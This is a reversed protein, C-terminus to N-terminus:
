NVVIKKVTRRNGDIVTVLYIGSSVNSLQINQDFHSTNDFSNSYVKKGLIDHVFVEVRNTADSEFQVTFNGKNPNPYLVFDIVDFDPTGLTYNKTCINISASNITGFMGTVNDRVRFTWNGQPNQDNFVSLLDVPIVIQSTTTSCNLNVGDDDFQVALTSNVDTCGKNFLRVITGQPNVVQIELDSLRTHTVNLSVNVDEVKGTSAPVTITKSTFTTSNPISFSGFSYTDCTITSTYGVAFPSSNLAYYINSLPEILIRCNTSSPVSAPLTIVESGDNPTNAALTIPFTLGGDTSLKINVTSSGFLTNTNNVSWTVAQNSGQNWSVTNGSHSTVAFPGAFAAVTVIMEDTNTQAKGLAANDRGTLTFHLTRAISSVSEWTTTLKNVLVSSYSPMYRIPSSVPPMSRFLPGDPKTPYAISNSKDTTIASDNQEWTYTVTDGDPDSGTGTLVFATSIPITYDIGANITPPNNTLATSVPCNKGALNDQIQAISAYAFYDDSNNQVDYDTIGAYGMLTSGSGPEVSTGTGEISYSFTHTAGLQHGLEHAVFDIDFTDGQPVGDSPSTYASGKGITNIAVPSSCICGICGANGGGGSGGFLHGIDYNAEGIVSTLNNQVEINWVQYDSTGPYDATGDKANSYPDTTANTYIVADNNAILILKVALDKNFVGNVRTLSANMGALAGAKTGGFFATYEGTCSLALRLTKFVKNSANTKATKKTSNNKSTFDKIGCVLKSISNLSGTSTFLVYGTKDDPNKEIFETPKDARLVMTQMGIPAMSFHIKATKDDLGSGEYARIEPYKAQLEPEFNSSEWVQFRELVGSANPITIETTTSKSNKNTTASLKAQLSESNLKYYLKNSEDSNGRKSLATNASVKQWLDDSQAHIKVCCFIILLFLLQKKM